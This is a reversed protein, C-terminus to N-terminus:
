GGLPAAAEAEPRARTRWASVFVFVILAVFGLLWSLGAPTTFSSSLGNLTLLTHSGALSQIEAAGAWVLLSLALTALIFGIPRPSPLAAQAGRSNRRSFAAGMASGLAAFLGEAALTILGTMVIFGAGDELFEFNLFNGLTLPQSARQVWSQYDAALRSSPAAGHQIAHWLLAILLVQSIQDVVLGILGALLGAYAGTRARGSAYGGIVGVVGTLLPFIIPGIGSGSESPAPLLGSLVNSVGVYLAIIGGLVLGIRVWGPQVGPRPFARLFRAIIFLLGAIVPGVVLLFTMLLATLGFMGQFGLTFWGLVWLLAVVAAEPALFALRKMPAKRERLAAQQERAVSKSEDGLVGLWFRLTSEGRTEIADHYHDQFTQLMQSGFARRHEKPYLHILWAYVRSARARRQVDSNQKM